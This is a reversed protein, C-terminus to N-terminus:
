NSLSVNISETTVDNRISITYVNKFTLTNIYDVNVDVLNNTSKLAEFTLKDGVTLQTKTPSMISINNSNM